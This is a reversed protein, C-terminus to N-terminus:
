NVDVNRAPSTVTRGEQDTVQVRLRYFGAPVDKWVVHYPAQTAEGVKEEGAFFAVRQIRREPWAVRASLEVDAGAEFPARGGVEIAAQIPLAGVGEVSPEVPQITGDENFALRDVFVQRRVPDGGQHKHYVIHWEDTGPRRFVSNHGPGHIELGHRGSLISNNKAREWPGMPSDSMAYMVRYETPGDPAGYNGRSWLLYYTGDRKFVYPGEIHLGEEGVSVTAQEPGTFSVMDDALKRVFLHEYIEEDGERWGKPMPVAGWYLYAQGDDDIFAMPDISSLDDRYPVLPEGLADKFPGAPDDSTAM